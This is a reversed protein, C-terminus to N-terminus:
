HFDVPKSKKLPQQYIKKLQHDEEVAPPIDEEVAPPIDEEVASTYIKKL